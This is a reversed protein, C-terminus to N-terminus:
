ADDVDEHEEVGLLFASPVFVDEVIAEGEEFVGGDDQDPEEVGRGGCPLRVTSAIELCNFQRSNPVNQWGQSRVVEGEDKPQQEHEAVVEPEM